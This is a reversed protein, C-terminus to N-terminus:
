FWEINPPSCHRWSSQGLLLYVEEILESEQVKRPKEAVSDITDDLLEFRNPGAMAPAMVPLRMFALFPGADNGERILAIGEPM